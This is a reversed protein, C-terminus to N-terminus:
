IKSRVTKAFIPAEDPTLSSKFQREVNKARSKKAAM